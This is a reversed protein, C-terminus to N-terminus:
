PATSILRVLFWSAATRDRAEKLPNLIQCQQSGHHLDCVHSSDQTATAAPYGPLQLELQVGLRPREMPRPHPGLFCFFLKKGAMEPAGREQHEGLARGRADNGGARLGRGLMDPLVPRRSVFEKTVLDLNTSSAAGFDTGSLRANTSLSPQKRGPAPAQPAPPSVDM